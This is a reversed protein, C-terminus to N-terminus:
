ILLELKFTVPKGKNRYPKFWSQKKIWQNFDLSDDIPRDLKDLLDEKFFSCAHLTHMDFGETLIKFKTKDKTLNANITLELGAFDNAVLIKGEAATFLQKVPKSYKSTSAPQTVLNIGCKHKNEDKAEPAKGSLRASLTGMINISGYIRENYYSGYYKPIYQTLINKAQAIELQLNLVEKVDGDTTKALQDLVEKSFSMEGTAKSIIPSELGFSLWMDKLQQYNFPNYGLDVYKEPHELKDIRNMKVNNDNAIKEAYVDAAEKLKPHEYQKALILSAIENDMTKLDNVTIKERLPGFMNFQTGYGEVM